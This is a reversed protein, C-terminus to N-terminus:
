PQQRRTLEAMVAVLRQRYVMIDAPHSFVAVMNPIYRDTLTVVIRRLEIESMQKLNGGMIEAHKTQFKADAADSAAVKGATMAKTAARTAAVGRTAESVLNAAEILSRMTNTDIPDNMTKDKM